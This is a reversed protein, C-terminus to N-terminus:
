AHALAEVAPSPLALFLARLARTADAFGEIEIHAIGTQRCHIALAKKALTLSALSAPCFDSRGDGILIQQKSTGASLNCKCNGSLSRCDSASNPFEARWRGDGIAVLRNSVVPLTVGARALVRAIIRDFGDSGIVVPVAFEECLAVFDAFGPDISAQDTLQDLDAENARVLDIQRLLCERSGIRGAAWDAEISRWAPDAFRELVLDTTDELVITGDFDALISPRMVVITGMPVM